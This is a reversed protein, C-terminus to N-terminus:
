CRCSLYRFNQTDVTLCLCCRIVFLRKTVANPQFMLVFLEDNLERYSMSPKAKAKIPKGHDCPDGAGAKNVARVRYNYEKDEVVKDDVLQHKGDGEAPVTGLRKWDKESKERREVVYQTIPSKGDDEPPEWQLTIHDADVDVADMNRPKGPTEPVDVSPGPGPKLIYQSESLVPKPSSSM